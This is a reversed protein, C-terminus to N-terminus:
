CSESIFVVNGAILTSAAYWTKPLLWIGPNVITAGTVLLGSVVAVGIALGCSGGVLTEMRNIDLEKM